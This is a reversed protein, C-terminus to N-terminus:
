CLFPGSIVFARVRPTMIAARVVSSTPMRSRVITEVLATWMARDRAGAPPTASTGHSSAPYASALAATWGSYPLSASAKPTL